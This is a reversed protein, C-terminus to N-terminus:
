TDDDSLSLADFRNTPAKKKGDKKLKKPKSKKARDEKLHKQSNIDKEMSHEEKGSEKARNDKKPADCERYGEDEEHRETKQDINENTSRSALIDERRKGVGFISSRESKQETVVKKSLELPKREDNAWDDERGGRRRPMREQPQRDSFSNRKRDSDRDRRGWDDRGRRWDDRDIRRESQDGFRPRQYNSMRDRDNRERDSFTRARNNRVRNRDGAFDVRIRRHGLGAGDRELAQLLTERDTFEVYAFGKSDGQENCIIETFKIKQLDVGLFGQIESEICNFPLNGIFAKWPPRTGPEIEVRNRNNRGFMGGRNREGGLDQFRRRDQPPDMRENRQLDAGRDQRGKISGEVQGLKQNRDSVKKKSM